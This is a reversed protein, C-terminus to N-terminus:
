HQYSEEGHIKLIDINKLDGSLIMLQNNGVYFVDTGTTLMLKPMFQKDDILFIGENMKLDKHSSSPICYIVDNLKKM